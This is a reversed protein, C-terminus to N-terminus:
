QVERGLTGELFCWVRRNAGTFSALGASTLNLDAEFEQQPPITIQNRRLKRHNEIHPQGNLGSTVFEDTAEAGAGAAFIHAGMGSPVAFMPLNLYDKTGVYFRFYYSELITLLGGVQDTNTALLTVAQAIHLRWGRVVFLKPNALKNDNINALVKNGQAAAPVPFFALRQEPTAATLSNSSYLPQEIPELYAKKAPDFPSTRRKQSM